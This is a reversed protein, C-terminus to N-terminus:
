HLDNFDLRIMGTSTFICHFILLVLISLFVVYAYSSPPPPLNGQGWYNSFPPPPLMGGGGGGGWYHKFLQEFKLIVIIHLEYYEKYQKYLYFPQKNVRLASFLFQLLRYKLKKSKDKLSFLAQNKGTFGRGLLPNVQFM